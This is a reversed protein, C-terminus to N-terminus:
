AKKEENKLIPQELEACTSVHSFVGRREGETEEALITEGAECQEGGLGMYEMDGCLETSEPGAVGGMVTQERPFQNPQEVAEGGVGIDEKSPGSM